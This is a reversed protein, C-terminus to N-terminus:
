NYSDWCSSITATQRSVQAESEACIGGGVCSGLGDRGDLFGPGDAAETVPVVEGHVGLRVLEEDGVAGDDLYYIHGGARYCALDGPKAFGMGDGEIFVAFEAVDAISQGVVDLDEITPGELHHSGDGGAGDGREMARSGWLPSSKTMHPSGAVAFGALGGGDM